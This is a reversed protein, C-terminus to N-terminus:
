KHVGSLYMTLPAEKNWNNDSQPITALNSRSTPAIAPTATVCSSWFLSIHFIRLSLCNYLLFRIDYQCRNWAVLLLFDFYSCSLTNPTDPSIFPRMGVM